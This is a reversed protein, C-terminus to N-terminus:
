FSDVLSTLILGRVTDDSGENCEDLLEFYYPILDLPVNAPPIIGDRPLASAQVSGVYSSLNAVYVLGLFLLTLTGFSSTAFSKM